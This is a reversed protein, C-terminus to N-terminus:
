GFYEQMLSDFLQQTKDLSAQVAVRLKDIRSVFTTFSLQVEVPPVIVLLESLIKLNINKQAVQPADHELKQQFFTFWYHIFLSSVRNGKAIFGVVSDPFCAPFTLISTEAINAAITIVLTGSPWLKSQKLGEESYSSTYDTIYTGANSIDGTQILPYPGNLLFPANRPRYKSIGRALEGLDVLKELQWSKPNTVPDGFLEVFRCKVLEDLKELQKKFCAILTEVRQLTKAIKRQEHLPKLEISFDSLYSFKLNDRVSGTAVHKIQCLTPQSKLYYLLYNKDLEDDVHFVVYLPSVIVCDEKRQFDVSGVNIRSPNYAFYGKPVLKYTTKDKSAVEKYFYESVFGKSNTVSYVPINADQKNRESYETIYDGLRAKM